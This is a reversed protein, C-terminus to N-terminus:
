HPKIVPLLLYSATNGGTYIITTGDFVADPRNEAHAHFFAASGTSVCHPFESADDPRPDVFDKGGVQLVIRFGAPLLITTPWIEIDLEYVRGSELLQIEDHTHYPCYPLSCVPDLKRHSARLWGQALPTHLDITGQLDAERADPSFAQLTVFLDMDTTSSSAFMKAALPGTLETDEKLPSSSFTLPEGLAAFSVSAETTPRDWSLARDLASFYIRSWATSPLPWASEKRVEFHSNEFPCRLCLRVPPEDQWGNDIGKLFYDLFRKQIDLGEQLYFWEDHHRGPHIQLWKQKSAARTFAEFNSRRYFGFGAWNAACFFPVTVKPWDPSREQCFIDDLPHKLVEAVPDSRSEKLQGGDLLNSVPGSAIDNLWPDVAADPNRRHISMVRQPYWKELFVNSMIGGHRRWDRCYGSAGELLIMAALHPPQLAAVLWQNIAYYSVESLGVKGNSWPQIGAWEIADYYDKVNRPSFM